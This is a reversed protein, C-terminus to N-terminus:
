RWEVDPSMEYGYGKHFAKRAEELSSFISDDKRMLDLWEQQMKVSWIHQIDEFESSPDRDLNVSM